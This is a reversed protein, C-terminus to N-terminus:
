DDTPPDEITWQTMLDPNVVVEGTTRFRYEGAPAEVFASLDPRCHLSKVQGVCGLLLASSMLGSLIEMSSFDSLLMMM